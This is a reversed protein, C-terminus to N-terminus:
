SVALIDFLTHVGIAIAIGRFRFLVCLFASALFRFLFTSFKFPFGEPNVADCHIIAFLFSTLAVAILFAISEDKFVKRFGVLLPAFLLLRFTLEEHIGTGLCTIMRSYQKSDVFLHALGALPQPRQDDIYLMLADCAVFLIIALLMSEVIMGLITKLRIPSLDTQRHHLFVLAGIMMLPLVITSATGLPGALMQILRDVASRTAVPTLAIGAEYWVLLPAIFALCALPNRAQRFYDYKRETASRRPEM